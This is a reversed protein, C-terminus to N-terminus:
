ALADSRSSARPSRLWKSFALVCCAASEGIFAFVALALATATAAIVAALHVGEFCKYTTNMWTDTCVYVLLMNKELPMFFGTTSVLAVM